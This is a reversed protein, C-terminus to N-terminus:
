LNRGDVTVRPRFRGYSDPIILVTARKAAKFDAEAGSEAPTGNSLKTRLTLPIRELPLGAKLQSQGYGLADIITQSGTSVGVTLGPFYNRVILIAQSAEPDNTDNVLEVSLASGQPSVVVTFYTNPRIDITLNKLPTTRDGSKYVAFQYRGVPLETYSSYRYSAAGAFPNAESSSAGAKELDLKGNSPPLM